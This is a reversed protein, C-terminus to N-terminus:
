SGNTVQSAMATQDQPTDAGSSPLLRGEVSGNQTTIQHQPVYVVERDGAYVLFGLVGFGLACFGIVTGITSIKQDKMEGKLEAFREAMDKRLLALSEKIDSKLAENSATMAKMEGRLEAYSHKITAMEDQLERNDM